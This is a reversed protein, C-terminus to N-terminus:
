GSADDQRFVRYRLPRVRIESGPTPATGDYGLDLEVSRPQAPLRLTLMRRGARVHAKVVQAPLTDEGAGTVLEHPRVFLWGPGDALGPCAFGLSAGDALFVESRVQGQLRSSRGLFDFVFANAPDAYVRDPPGAQEIAGARMVLLRDALELAEEQDHTVLVTTSGTDDHIARLWRRLESRVAADLAGFPEDLLLVSPEIALARAIAVRQKQGGSLQDPLRSRLEAIQLRELLTDVRQALAAASLRQRRPRVRLGFAVNEFVNLHPFLAFHQFVLGIRRERLNMGAADRDGFAVRGADCPELGALVRLLTTKGAGSPGLVAVLEGSEIAIDIGRLAPVGGYHKHLNEIRLHM